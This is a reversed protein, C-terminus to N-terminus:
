RTRIDLTECPKGRPLRGLNTGDLLYASISHENVLNNRLLPGLAGGGPANIPSGTILPNFAPVVVLEDPCSAYRETVKKKSFGARMWCKENVRGGMSDELRVSPHVHGMVVTDCAMVDDSPWVHGHFAGVGDVVTGHSTTIVCGEPMAERLGGDHNGPTVVVAQFTRMIRQMIARLDRDEGRSAHTIRHKVDGLIMLRDAHCGLTEIASSMKPLQSPINFGSGRLATEIGIHLDAICVWRRPGELTLAPTDPVPVLNVPHMRYARRYFVQGMM